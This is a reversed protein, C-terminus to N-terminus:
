PAGCGATFPALLDPVAGDAPRGAPSAGAPAPLAAASLRRLRRVLAAYRRDRLAAALRRRALAQRREFAAVAALRAPQLAPPATDDGALLLLAVDADRVAGLADALWRLEARLGAARHAPLAERFLRAAARLRRVAVRMDHVYEPDLGARAGPERSAMQEALASVVWRAATGLPDAPRISPMAMRPLAPARVRALRLGRELKSMNGPTWGTAAALKEAFRTLGSLPGSAWEIEVEHFSLGGVPDVLRVTDASVTAATGGPLHVRYTDRRHDLKLLVELRAGPFARRFRRRLVRGPFPGPLRVAGPDLTEELEVRHAVLASGAHRSKATLITRGGGTRVRLGVGARYLDRGRTDVYVDELRHHSAGLVAAGCAGLRDALHALESARPVSFKAEREINM